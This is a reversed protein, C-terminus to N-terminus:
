ESELTWFCQPSAQQEADVIINDLKTATAVAETWLVSKEEDSLGADNLM